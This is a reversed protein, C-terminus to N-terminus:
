LEVSNTSGTVFALVKQFSPRSSLKNWWASVHPRSTFLESKGLATVLMNGNPLHVLDAVTFSDGALYKRSSLIEEYVDLVKEVKAVQEAEAADDRPLGKYNVGHWLHVLSSCPRNFNQSEVEWWQNVVAREKPTKGILATNEYKEVLYRVIAHSEFITLDGDQLVPIQGFPQLKLFELSKHQGNEMDVLVMKYDHVGLEALTILVLQTYTSYRVGHVILTM